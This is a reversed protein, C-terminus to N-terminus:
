QGGRGGGSPANFRLVPGNEGAEEIFAGGTYRGIVMRWFRQAPRNGAEQGVHWAGPFQDFVRHAAQQGIRQGRYRRLVFFEALEYTGADLARILVFGALRDAVRIFFPYRGAETWYHDLYPYEFLGHVNVEARNFASYDHQCLEMLNRLVAKHEVPIADLEIDM